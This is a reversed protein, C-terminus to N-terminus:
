SGKVNLAQLRYTSEDVKQENRAVVVEGGWARLQVQTQQEGYLCARFSAYSQANAAAVDILMEAQAFQYLAPLTFELGNPTISINTQQLALRDHLQTPTQLYVAFVQQLVYTYVAQATAFTAQSPM